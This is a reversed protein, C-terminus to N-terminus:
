ANVPATDAAEIPEDHLQPIHAPHDPSITEDVTRGRMRVSVLSSV